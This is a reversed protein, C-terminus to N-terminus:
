AVRSEAWDEAANQYEREAIMRSARRSEDSTLGVVQGCCACVTSEIEVDPTPGFCSVYGDVEVDVQRDGRKVAFGISV